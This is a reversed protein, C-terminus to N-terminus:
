PKWVEDQGDHDQSQQLGHSVGSEQQEREEKFTTPPAIANEDVGPNLPRHTQEEYLGVHLDPRGDPVDIQVDEATHQILPADGTGSASDAPDDEQESTQKTTPGADEPQRNTQKSRREKKRKNRNSPRTEAQFHM